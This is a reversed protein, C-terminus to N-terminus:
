KPQIDAIFFGSRAYFLRDTFSGRVRTGELTGALVLAPQDSADVARLTISITRDDALELIGSGGRPEKQQDGDLSRWAIATKQGIAMRASAVQFRNPLGVPTPRQTLQTLTVTFEVPRSAQLAAEAGATAASPDHVGNCAGFTVLSGLTFLRYFMPAM